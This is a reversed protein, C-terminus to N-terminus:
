PSAGRSPAAGAAGGAPAPEPHRYHLETKRLDPGIPQPRQFVHLGVRKPRRPRSAAGARDSFERTPVEASLDSVIKREGAIAPYLDGSSRKSGGGSYHHHGSDRALTTPMDSDNTKASKNCRM